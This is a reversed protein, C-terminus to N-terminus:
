DSTLTVWCCNDKEKPTPLHTTFYPMHGNLHFQIYVNDDQSFIGHISKGQSAWKPTIDCAIGNDWLQAPPILSQEMTNGFYLGQHFVAIISEGELDVATILMGVKISKLLDMSPHFGGVDVVKGTDQYYNLPADEVFPILKHTWKLGQASRSTLRTMSSPQRASRPTRQIHDKRCKWKQWKNSRM